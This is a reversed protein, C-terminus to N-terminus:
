KGIFPPYQELDGRLHRALLLSQIHPLLGIHTKENLFPHIIEQQKKEQLAILVIKRGDDTLQIAGSAQKKFHKTQLQQRNFLTLTLRDAWWARFEELLDQALSARGPRDAHMFGIQPDLGVGQLAASCENGIMSYLFSLVANIPDTPPRKTRGAFTFEKQAQATLLQDFVSFYNAAGEGEIGRLKNIDKCKPISKLSYNLRKVAHELEPSSGHNRIRRQLVTKSSKIKAAIINKAIDLPNSEAKRFQAKRLLVNGSQPGEIRAQFRGYPTFFAINVNNNACHAMLDPSMMVRGLCYIGSINHIPVQMIKTKEQEVVITERVKRVFCGDRTIYIQNQLKKM